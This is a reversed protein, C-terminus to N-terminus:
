RYNEMYPTVLGEEKLKMIADALAEIKEDYTIDKSVIQMRDYDRQIQLVDKILSILNHKNFKVEIEKMM